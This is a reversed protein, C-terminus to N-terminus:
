LPKVKIQVHSVDKSCPSFPEGAKITQACSRFWIFQKLDFDLVAELGIPVVACCRGRWRALRAIKESRGMTILTSGRM